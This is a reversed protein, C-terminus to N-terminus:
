DVTVIVKGVTQASQFQRVAKILDNFNFVSGIYPRELNMDLIIKLYKKLIEVRDWLYILNFGM